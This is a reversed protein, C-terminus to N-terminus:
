GATLFCFRYADAAISARNKLDFVDMSVRRDELFGQSISKTYAM